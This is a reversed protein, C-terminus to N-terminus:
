EQRMKAREEAQMRMRESSLESKDDSSMQMREDTTMALIEEARGGCTYGREALYTQFNLGSQAMVAEMMEDGLADAEEPSLDVAVESSQCALLELIPDFEEVAERGAQGKAGGSPIAKAGEAAAKKKAEDAKAEEADRPPAQYPGTTGATAETTTESTAEGGATEEAGEEAQEPSAGCGVLLVLVLLMLALRM